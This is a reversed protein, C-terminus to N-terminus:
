IYLLNQKSKLSEIDIKFSALIISSHNLIDIIKKEEQEFLSSRIYILFDTTKLEPLLFGKPSKNSILFFTAHDVEDDYQFCTFSGSGQKLEIKKDDVRKFDMQLLKNIEWCLRYDKSHCSIGVLGFDYEDEIHLVFKSM